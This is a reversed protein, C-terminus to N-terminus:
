QLDFRIPVNYYVRVKRGNSEGPKWKPLSRVVRLAEEDLAPFQSVVVKANSVSGDKEVVFEVLVTGMAGADRAAAPYELHDRLYQNLAAMGGPFEPMQEVFRVPPEEAAVEEVVEPAEWEDIAMEDTVDQGFNFDFDAKATNEVINLIIETNQQQVEEQKQEQPKEDTEPPTYEDVTAAEPEDQIAAVKKESTALLDLCVWSLSMAVICGLAFFIIKRKEIDAKFSKKNAM